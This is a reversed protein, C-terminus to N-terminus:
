RLYFGLAPQELQTDRRMAGIFRERIHVVAVRLTVKSKQPDDLTFTVELADGKQYGHKRHCTFGIGMLSINEVVINGRLGSESHVCFGPLNVKKRYHRRFEFQGRMILGCTCTAKFTKLAYNNNNTDITKSKGCQPCQLHTIGEKNVYCVVRHEETDPKM